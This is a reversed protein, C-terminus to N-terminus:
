KAHKKHVKKTRMWEVQMAPKEILENSMSVDYRYDFFLETQPHIDEKAFIGIRSDGNVNL